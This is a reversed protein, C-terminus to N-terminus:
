FKFAGARDTGCFDHKASWNLISYVIEMEDEGVCVFSAKKWLPYGIRRAVILADNTVGPLVMLQSQTIDLQHLIAGYEIKPTDILIM